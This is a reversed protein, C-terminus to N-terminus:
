RNNLLALQPKGGNEPNKLPYAELMVEWGPFFCKYRRRLADLVVDAEDPNCSEVREILQSLTIESNMIEGGM